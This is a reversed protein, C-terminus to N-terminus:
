QFESIGREQLEEVTNYGSVACLSPLLCLGACGSSKVTRKTWSEPRQPWKDDNKNDHLSYSIYIMQPVQLVLNCEGGSNVPM